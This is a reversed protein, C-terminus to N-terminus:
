PEVGLVLRSLDVTAQSAKAVRALYDDRTIERVGLSRLHSTAFQVDFVRIGAKHLSRSAAVVAIKSADTMRHFMSEAAFLAGCQVGYLGGVLRNEQWVEVSHAHGEHHLKQYARRMEPVIWTGGKRGQGCALIVDSFALNWTLVYDKQALRRRLSRSVHLEEAPLIARPNPSWWLVPFGDNYWPFIGAAYAARLRAVSLDGGIAVLGEDDGRRPDPFIPPADPSLLVPRQSSRSRFM